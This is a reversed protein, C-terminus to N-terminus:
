QSRGLNRCLRGCSKQKARDMSRICSEYGLIGVARACYRFDSCCFSLAPSFQLLWWSAAAPISPPFWVFSPFESLVQAAGEPTLWSDPVRLEQVRNDREGGSAAAALLPSRAPSSRAPASAAPRSPNSPPALFPQAKSPPPPSHLRGHLLLAAFSTSSSM